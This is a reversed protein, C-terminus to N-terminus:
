KKGSVNTQFHECFFSASSPLFTANGTFFEDDSLRASLPIEFLPLLLTLLLPRFVGVASTVDTFDTGAVEVEVDEAVREVELDVGERSLREISFLELSSVRLGDM